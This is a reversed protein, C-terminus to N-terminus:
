SSTNTKAVAPVKHDIATMLSESKLKEFSGGIGNRKMEGQSHSVSSLNILGM